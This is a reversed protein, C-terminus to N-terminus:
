ETMCFASHSSHNIGQAILGQGKMLLMSMKMKVIFLEVENKSIFNSLTDLIKFKTFDAVTFNVGKAVLNAIAKNFVKM